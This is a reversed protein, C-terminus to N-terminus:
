SGHQPVKNIIKGERTKLTLLQNALARRRSFFVTRWGSMAQSSRIRNYLECTDALASSSLQWLPPLPSSSSLSPCSATSLAALSSSLLRLHSSAAWATASAAAPHRISPASVVSLRFWAWWWLTLSLYHVHPSAFTRTYKICYRHFAQWIGDYAHVM